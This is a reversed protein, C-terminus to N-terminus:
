SWATVEPFVRVSVGVTRCCFFPTLYDFDMTAKAAFSRNFSSRAVNVNPTQAFSHQSYRSGLTMANDIM